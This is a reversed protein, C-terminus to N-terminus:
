KGGKERVLTAEFVRGDRTRGRLDGDLPLLLTTADDFELPRSAPEFEKPNFTQERGFDLTLDVYRPQDSIRIDDIAFM